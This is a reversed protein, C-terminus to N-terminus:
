HLQDSSRTVIGYRSKWFPPGPQPAKWTPFFVRRDRDLLNDRQGDITFTRMLARWDVAGPAQWPDLDEGPGPVAFLGLEDRPLFLHDDPGLTVPFSSFAQDIGELAGILADGGRGDSRGLALAVSRIADYGEQEFGEPPDGFVDTIRDIFRGVRPIPRAWGAWTYTYCATTGPPPRFGRAESLLSASGAIRPHRTSATLSGVIARADAPSGFVIAADASVAEAPPSSGAAVFFARHM